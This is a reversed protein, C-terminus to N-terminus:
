LIIKFLPQFTRTSPQFFILLLIRIDFELCKEFILAQFNLIWLTSVNPIVIIMDSVRDQLERYYYFSHCHIGTRYYLFCYWLNVICLIIETVCGCLIHVKCYCLSFYYVCHFWLKVLSIRMVAVSADKISWTYFKALRMHPIKNLTHSHAHIRDHALFHIIHINIYHRKSPLECPHM